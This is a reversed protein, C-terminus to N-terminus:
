TTIEYLKFGDFNESSRITIEMSFNEFNISSFSDNEHSECTKTM